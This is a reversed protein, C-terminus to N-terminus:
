LIRESIEVVKSSVQRRHGPPVTTEHKTREDGARVTRSRAEAPSMTNREQALFKVRVIGRKLRTYILVPLSLTLPSEAVSRCGM